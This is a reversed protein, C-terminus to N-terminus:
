GHRSTKQKAHRHQRMTCDTWRNPNRKREGTTIDIYRISDHYQRITVAEGSPHPAWEGWQKFFFAPQHFPNESDQQCQDRLSTAWDPHMPRAGPGSEGGVIVQDLHNLWNPELVVPGVLPECSLFRWFAPTDVLLPIREDAAAQDEVSVGFMANRPPQYLKASGDTPLEYFHGIRDDVRFRSKIYDRMRAPRKTLIMFTHDRCREIVAFVLDLWEDEVRDHFLDSTSCVFVRRQKRWSLPVLLEADDLRVEGTWRHDAGTPGHVIEALGHGWQGPKNFRSAMIEAYCNLCGTSARTCGRIPNWTTDAWEIKTNDAM